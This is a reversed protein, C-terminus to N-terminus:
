TAPNPKPQQILQLVEGGKKILPVLVFSDLVKTKIVTHDLCCLRCDKFKARFKICASFHLLIPFTFMNSLSWVRSHPFPKAARLSPCVCILLPSVYCFSVAFLSRSCMRRECNFCKDWWVIWFWSPQNWRTLIWTALLLEGFSDFHVVAQKERSTKGKVGPRERMSYLTRQFLSWRCAHATALDQVLLWGQRFLNFLFSVQRCGVAGHVFFIFGILATSFRWFWPSYLIRKLACLLKVNEFVRPCVSISPCNTIFIFSQTAALLTM